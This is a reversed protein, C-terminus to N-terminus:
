SEQNKTELYELIEAANTDPKAKPYVKEIVGQPDIIYTSRVVGLSVKGYLKKEQWVGYAELATREPDSLLRFPLGNKQIFRLHSASSDRSVGLVVAGLARLEEHVDAFARAQRTCGPTSDKPYFYLVVTQGRFDSLSVPEGNHDPLTFEPAQSGIELM